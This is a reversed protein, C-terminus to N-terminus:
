LKLDFTFNNEGGSKVDATLTTSTTSSYQGPVLNASGSGGKRSSHSDAASDVGDDGHGDNAASSSEEPAIKTIVVKYQGEAAGDGFAYTTLKFVGNADTNGIATPQGETVPAFAVTAGPLPSGNLLVTGGAAFVPKGGEAGGGCGLLSITSLILSGHLILKM